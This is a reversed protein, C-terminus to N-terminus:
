ECGLLITRFFATRVDAIAVFAVLGKGRWIWEKVCNSYFANKRLIKGYMEGVKGRSDPTESSLGTSNL